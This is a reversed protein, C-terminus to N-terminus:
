RKMAIPAAPHCMQKYTSSRSRAPFGMPRMTPGSAIFNPPCPNFASYAFCTPIWSGWQGDLACLLRLHRPTESLYLLIEDHLLSGFTRNKAPNVNDTANRYETVNIIRRRISWVVSPSNPIDKEGYQQNRSQPHPFAVNNSSKKRLSRFRCLFQLSLSGIFADSRISWSIAPSVSQRPFLSALTRSVMRSASRSIM